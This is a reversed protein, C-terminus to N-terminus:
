IVQIFIFTVHFLLTYLSNNSANQQQFVTLSLTILLKGCGFYYFSKGFNSCSLEIPNFNESNCDRLEKLLNTNRKPVSYRKLTHSTYKISHKSGASSGKFALNSSNLKRCRLLFLWAYVGVRKQRWVLRRATAHHM